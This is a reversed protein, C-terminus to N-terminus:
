EAEGAASEQSSVYFMRLQHLLDTMMTQEGEDLNGKTKEELMQLMDIAYKAHEPSHIIEQTVPNPFQGMAVMAETAFTTLLMEFTAPPMQGGMPPESPPTEQPEQALTEKEAEIQSKWDEDIIIKKEDSM